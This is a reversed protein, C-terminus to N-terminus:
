ESGINAGGSTCTTGKTCPASRRESESCDVVVANVRIRRPAPFVAVSSCGAGAGLGGMGAEWGSTQRGDCGGDRAGSFGVPGRRTFSVVLCGSEMHAPDSRPGASLVCGELPRCGTVDLGASEDDAVSGDCGRVLRGNERHPAGSSVGRSRVWGWCVPLRCRQLLPAETCGHMSSWTGASLSAAGNHVCASPGACGGRGGVGLGASGATRPSWSVALGFGFGMGALGLVWLNRRLLLDKLLVL